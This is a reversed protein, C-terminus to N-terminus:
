MPEMKVQYLNFQASPEIDMRKLSRKQLQTFFLLFGEIGKVQVGQYVLPKQPPVAKCVTSPWPLQSVVFSASGEGSPLGAPRLAHGTGVSTLPREHELGKGCKQFIVPSNLLLCSSIGMHIKPHWTIIEPELMIEVWILYCCNHKVSFLAFPLVSM